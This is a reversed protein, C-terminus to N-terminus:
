VFGIAIWTFSVDAIGQACYANANFGSPDHTGVCVFRNAGSQNLGVVIGPNSRFTVGYNVRQVKYAQGVSSITGAGAAVRMGKVNNVQSSLTNLNTNIANLGTQDAKDNLKLNTANLSLKDAKEDLKLNLNDVKSKVENIANTQIQYQEMNVLGKSDLLVEFPVINSTKFYFDWTISFGPSEMESPINKAQLAQALCFLIEGEEPDEAYFGVQWLEYSEKLGKNELLVPLIATDGETRAPQLTIDYGGETVRTQQRLDVVPVKKSGTAVRRIKLTEGELLKAQLAKGQDTLVTYEWINM